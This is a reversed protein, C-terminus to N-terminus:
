MDNLVLMEENIKKRCSRDMSSLPTKLDGRIVTNSHIEGNLDALIQNIYKPM